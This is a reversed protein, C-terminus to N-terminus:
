EVVTSTNSKDLLAVYQQQLLKCKQRALEMDKELLDEYKEIGQKIEKISDGYKALTGQTVKADKSRLIGAIEDLMGDVSVATQSEYRDFILKRQKEVDLMPIAEFEPEWMTTKYPALDKVFGELSNILDDYQKSIFYVGGSTRVTTPFTDMMIGRVMDRIHKGEYYEVLEEYVQEAYQGVEKFSVEFDIEVDQTDRKFMFTGIRRYDLRTNNEDRVERIAHRVIGYEDSRVNRVLIVEHKGDGIHKPYKYKQGVKTTARRFANAKSIVPPLYYSPMNHQYFLQQVETRRIRLDSISYWVLHGLLPYRQEDEEDLADQEVAAVNELKSM